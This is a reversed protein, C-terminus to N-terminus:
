RLPAAINRWTPSYRIAMVAAASTLATSIAMGKLAGVMVRHHMNDVDAQDLIRMTATNNTTLDL